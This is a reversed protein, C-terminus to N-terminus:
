ALLTDILKKLKPAMVIGESNKVPEIREGYTDQSYKRVWKLLDKGKVHEITVPKTPDCLIDTAPSGGDKYLKQNHIKRKEKFTKRIAVNNESLLSDILTQIDDESKGSIKVLHAIELFYMELDCMDTVFPNLKKDEVEKEWLKVENDTLFDRDRHIIFKQDKQKLEKSVQLVAAYNAVGNYSAIGIREIPAGIQFLIKRLLSKDEDETLIILEKEFQDAQDLAGLENLLKVKNIDEDSKLTGNELWFMKADEPLANILHRSHTAILIRTGTEKAISKLVELILQQNSPHLHSDPEDLLLVVPSFLLTYSFLQIAQLAGTGVLDIPLLKQGHTTAYVEIHRSKKTDFNVEMKFESFISQMKEQLLDLKGEFKILYLINRLVSNAEGGAIKRIVVAESKHEEYHPIGALGPVYISFPPSVKTIHSGFGSVDGTRQIGARDNTARYLGIAYHADQEKDDKGIFDIEARNDSSATGFSQNYGLDSFRATPCYKLQDEAIVTWSLESATQATTVAVHIAQLISSKGSNNGGVLYNIPALNLTVDSICKFKKICIKELKM